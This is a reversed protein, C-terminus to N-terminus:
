VELLSDGVICNRGQKKGLYLHIDARKITEHINEALHYETIGCTLSVNIRQGEWEFRHQRLQTMIKKAVIDAEIVTTKSLLLLYEEGGWRAVTDIRRTNKQMIKAVTLIVYDGCNHGYRDNIKKFFDIDAMILSFSEDGVRGCDYQSKEQQLLQHMYRRNALKTLPDMRSLQAYQLAENKAKDVNNFLVLMIGEGITSKLETRVEFWRYEEDKCFVKTCFQVISTEGNVLEIIRKNWADMVKHRYDTDPYAKSIFRLHDPIDKVEYGITKVFSQNVFLVKGRKNSEDEKGILIPTPLFNLYQFFLAQENKITLM